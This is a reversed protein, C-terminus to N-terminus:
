YQNALAIHVHPWAHAPLPSSRLSQCNASINGMGYSGSCCEMPGQWKQGKYKTLCPPFTDALVSRISHWAIARVRTIWKHAWDTWQRYVHKGSLVKTLLIGGWIDGSSFRDHYPVKITSKLDISVTSFWLFRKDNNQWHENKVTLNVVQLKHRM